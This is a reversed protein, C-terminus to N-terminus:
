EKITIGNSIPQEPITPISDANSVLKVPYRFYATLIPSQDVYLPCNFELLHKSLVMNETIISIKYPPFQVTRLFLGDWFYSVAGMAVKRGENSEVYIDKITLTDGKVVYITDNINKGGAIEIKFSVDPTEGNKCSTMILPLVFFLVLLKKM